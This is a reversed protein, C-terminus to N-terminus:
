DSRSVSRGYDHTRDEVADLRDQRRGYVIDVSEDTLRDLSNESSTISATLDADESQRLGKRVSKGYTREAACTRWTRFVSGPKQLESEGSKVGNVASGSGRLISIKSSENAVKHLDCGINRNYSAM